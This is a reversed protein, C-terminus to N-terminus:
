ILEVRMILNDFPTKDLAKVFYEAEDKNYFDIYCEVENKNGFNIRDFSGWPTILEIMEKLSLDNPLNSMKVCFKKNNQKATNNRPRYKNQKNCKMTLHNGNCKKCILKNTNM